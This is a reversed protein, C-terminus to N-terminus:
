GLGVRNARKLTDKVLTEARLHPDGYSGRLCCAGPDAGIENRNDLQRSPERM